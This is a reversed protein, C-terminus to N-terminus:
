STENKRRRREAPASRQGNKKIYSSLLAACHHTRDDWLLFPGPDIAPDSTNTKQTFKAHEGWTPHNKEPARSGGVTWVARM